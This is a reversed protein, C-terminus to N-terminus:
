EALCGSFRVKRLILRSASYSYSIQVLQGRLSDRVHCHKTLKRPSFPLLQDRCKSESCDIEEAWCNREECIENRTQAASLSHARKASNLCRIKQSLESGLQSTPPLPAKSQYATSVKSKTPLVAPPRGSEFHARYAVGDRVALAVAWSVPAVGRLFSYTAFRKWNIHKVQISEALPSVKQLTASYPNRLRIAARIGM